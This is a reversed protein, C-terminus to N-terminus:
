YTCCPGRYLISLISHPLVRLHSCPSFPSKNTFVPNPFAPHRFMGEIKKEKELVEEIERRPMLRITRILREISCGCSWEPQSRTPKMPELDKMLKSMIDTATGGGALIETVPPLEKVNRELTAISEESADPLLQVLFGGAHQVDGQPSIRVGASIASPVQESEALYHSVDQAVEGSVIRVLGTYPQKAYVSNRVVALVGSGVAAAVNLEGTSTQPVVTKPNGCYGRVQNRGSTIATVGGLPGDSRWQMQLTEGEPKGASCMLVCLLARGLATTAVASAQHLEASKAVLNAGDVVAVRVEGNASLTHVLEDNSASCVLVHRATRPRRATSRSIRLHTKNPIFHVPTVFTPTM